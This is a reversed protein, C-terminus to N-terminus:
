RWKGGKPANFKAQSALISNIDLAGGKAMDLLKQHENVTNRLNSLMEMEVNELETIKDSVGHLRSQADMAKKEKEEKLNM